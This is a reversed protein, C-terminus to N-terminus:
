IDVRNGSSGHANSPVMVISGVKVVVSKCHHICCSLFNSLNPEILVQHSEKFFGYFYFGSFASSSWGTHQCHRSTIAGCSVSIHCSSMVHACMSRKKRTKMPWHEHLWPLLLIAYLCQYFHHWLLIALLRERPKIEMIFVQLHWKLQSGSKLQKITKELSCHGPPTPLGQYELSSYEM